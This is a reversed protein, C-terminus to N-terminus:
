KRKGFLLVSANNRGVALHKSGKIDIVTADRVEGEVKIGCERPSVYTFLRGGKGKLFVGKSANQRGVQPKLAYFNGGLWIDVKGDEDLDETVIGFIPSSQAELPLAELEYKGNNNWLVASQLYNAEYRLAKSRVESSFLSDYTKNGYYEYRLIQKKLGPLQSTLEAKTAFPYSTSNLPPYWNIICESKGNNDFDNVYMTLPKEPTAKLKTNLGWNGVVFDTDGDGDLDAAKIRNWWGKSNTIPVPDQLRGNENKFINIGMWDGVVVLDKDGDSDIDTWSADTVMGVNALSPPAVDTWVGNDNMLLYSRPPLGYNGPVNRSGLFIDADGDGDFDSAEMTSFNGLVRPVASPAISFNGKGDNNYARVSFNMKSMGIENGGSGILLDLDGDKDYDLLAGCTSEFTGPLKNFSVQVSYYFSGDAKQVYLKDPDGAAGPLIFDTLKDSNVDGKILRPGETSLQRILLLEDDFDNYRNEHHVAPRNILKQGVEEFGPEIHINSITRVFSGDRNKLTIAQDSKVNTMVQVKGDPWTVQLSDISAAKGVGFLLGPEVSSQFGRTNYNQAISVEDKLRLRVEAGIGFMNKESGEFRVKLFHNDSHKNADNRYVFSKANINNVVLDQDGDNDLDGYAAGNSYSLQSFGLSAAKNTFTLNGANSFAYNQL